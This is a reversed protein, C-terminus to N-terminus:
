APNPGDLVLAGRADLTPRRYERREVEKGSRLAEIQLRMEAVDSQWAPTSSYTPRSMIDNIKAELRDIKANSM